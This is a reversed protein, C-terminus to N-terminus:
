GHHDTGSGPDVQGVKRGLREVLQVGGVGVGDGGAHEVWGARDDRDVASILDGTAPAEGASALVGVHEEGVADFADDVSHRLYTPRDESWGVDGDLVRP